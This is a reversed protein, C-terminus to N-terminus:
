LTSDAESKLPHRLQLKDSRPRASLEPANATPSGLSRDAWHSIEGRDDDISGKSEKVQSIIVSEGGAVPCTGPWSGSSPKLGPSIVQWMSPLATGLSNLRSTLSQSSQIIESAEVSRQSVIPRM